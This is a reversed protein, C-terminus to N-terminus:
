LFSFQPASHNLFKGLTEMEWGAWTAQVPTQAGPGALLLSIVSKGSAMIEQTDAEGPLEVSLCPKTNSCKESM